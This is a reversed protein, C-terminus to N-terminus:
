LRRLSSRWQRGERYAMDKLLQQQERRYAAIFAGDTTDHLVEETIRIRGMIKRVVVRCPPQVWGVFTSAPTVLAGALIGLFGRRGIM